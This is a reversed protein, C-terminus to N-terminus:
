RQKREYRVDVFADPEADFTARVYKCLPRIRFGRERAQAVATDLLRRAVGQHQLQPRVGTHTIVMAGERWYYEMEALHPPERDPNTIVFAGNNGDDVQEITHDSV